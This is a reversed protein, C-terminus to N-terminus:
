ANQSAKRHERNAASIIFQMTVLVALIVGCSIYLATNYSGTLDYCLNVVPSGVAYGATNVSVVIGLIKSYSKEGFLDGAFIPLMVTELPLALASLILLTFSNGMIRESQPKNGEGLKISALPAGGAGAFAAFATLTLAIPFTIGVGTLALDGVEPIHGIFIRDVVNYLMNVIQALVSPVAMKLMLPLIPASGLAAESQKALVTVQKREYLIMM